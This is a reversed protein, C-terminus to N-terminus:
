TNKSRKATFATSTPLSCTPLPPWRHASWRCPLRKHGLMMNPRGCTLPLRERYAEQLSPQGHACWLSSPRPLHRQTCICRSGQRGSAPLLLQRRYAVQPCLCHGHLRHKGMPADARPYPHHHCDM